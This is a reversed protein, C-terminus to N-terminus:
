SFILIVLVQNNSEMQQQNGEKTKLIILQESFYIILFHVVKQFLFTNPLFLLLLVYCLLILNNSLYDFCHSKKVTMRNLKNLQQLPHKDKNNRNYSSSNILKQAYNKMKKKKFIRGYNLSKIVQKCTANKSDKKKKLSANTLILLLRTLIQDMKM